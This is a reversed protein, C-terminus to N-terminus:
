KKSTQVSRGVPGSYSREIKAIRLEYHTYWREIGVNQAVMHKAHRKWAAISEESDWYSVIIGFRSDDRATEAGFCGPQQCALEFMKEGMDAYGADEESLQSSFIVAYYHAEPTNTFRDNM